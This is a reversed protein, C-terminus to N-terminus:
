RDDTMLDREMKINSRVYHGKEMETEVFGFKKYLHIAPSLQNNSYLILKKIHLQTAINLCHQMLINGIGFGQAKEKVAMKALEFVDETVKLLSVTGVINDNMKAYYIFGGKDLIEEKPNSLQLIDTPELTFYKELWEANLIRIADKYEDSYDIIEVPIHQANYYLTM